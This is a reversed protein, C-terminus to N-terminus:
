QPIFIARFQTNVHWGTSALSPNGKNYCTKTVFNYVIKTCGPRSRCLSICAADSAIGYWIDPAPNNTFDSSPCVQYVTNGVTVPYTPVLCKTLPTGDPVKVLTQFGPNVAWNSAPVSPSGKLYCTKTSPRFVAKTCGQTAECQTACDRNTQYGYYIQPSPIQFDTDPCVAYLGGQNGVVYGLPSPCSTLSSGSSGNTSSSTTKASTSTTTTPQSTSATTTIGILSISTSTSTSPGNASGGQPCNFNGIDASYTWSFAFQITYVDSGSTYGMNTAYSQDWTRSYLACIQAQVVGNKVLLYSTFFRCTLGNFPGTNQREDACDAACLAPDYPQNIHAKYTIYSNCSTPANITAANTYTSNYGPISCDPASLQYGNSGAIVVHFDNRNQGNNTATSPGIAVGWFSCKIVTTSPPNPCASAPDLSPDREFFINFSLCGSIQACDAACQAPNYSAYTKYGQYSSASTASQLNQFTQYWGSPTVAQLAANSLASDALFAQDTDNSPVPGSGPPLITCDRAVLKELDRKSATVTQNGVGVPVTQLTSVPIGALDFSNMLQAAGSAAFATLVTFSRM